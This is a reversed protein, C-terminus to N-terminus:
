GSMPAVALAATWPHYRKQARASYVPGHQDLHVFHHLRCAQTSRAQRSTTPRHGM